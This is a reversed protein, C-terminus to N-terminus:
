ANRLDFEEVFQHCFYLAFVGDEGVVPRLAVPQGVLAKSTRLAKGQFSVWGGQQVKRVFNDGPYEVPPLQVPLSRTSPQYRESPTAMGLAQHPREHNYIHRWADFRRQVDVLDIFDYRDIVEAKLTRHFREDKGNTQPHHPRSHSVHIGLRILWVGLRTLPGQGGNGWPSGNDTNICKPLGYRGFVRLLAVQVSEHRENGQADLCLNYRSHDDLITLPHCRGEHSTSFYGKFDMQWLDNPFPHEFRQWPTAARSAEPSIRGNRRLISNVTSSALVIGSDRSLVHAIKRAGWAPHDDRAALIRAEQAQPTRKPSNKPRCSRDDMDDRNLWKYITKRSVGFRRALESINAGPKRALTVLEIRQEKVTQTRWPM